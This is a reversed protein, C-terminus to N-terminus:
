KARPGRELRAHAVAANCLLETVSAADAAQSIQLEKYGLSNLPEAVSRSMAFLFVNRLTGCEQAFQRATRPSFLPALVTEEGQLVQKAQDSLGLLRQDYVIRAQTPLGAATLQAAIDGRTHRGRLHLLSLGHHQATMNRVLGAADPGACDAAWGLARATQTTRTGVCFARLRIRTQASAQEVANSSSFLVADVPGLDGDFPVPEIKLLPSMVVSLNARVHDPLGAVFRQSAEIPRTMLLQVM